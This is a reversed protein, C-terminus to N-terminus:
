GVIRTKALSARLTVAFPFKQISESNSCGPQYSKHMQKLTDPLPAPQFQRHVQSRWKL